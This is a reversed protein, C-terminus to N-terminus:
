ESSNKDDVSTLGLAVNLYRKSGHKMLNHFLDFESHVCQGENFIYLTFM